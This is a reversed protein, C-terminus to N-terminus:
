TNVAYKDNYLRRVKEKARKIRMKVASESINFVKQIDRISLDDQYKMLLIMKEEAKVHELLKALQAAKIHSLDDANDVELSNVANREEEMSVFKGKQSKRLYDICFNYTISYLWTSFKSKGKFSGLNMYVKIFIDHTLDEAISPDKVFSLCKRYVKHVYREYLIEVMAPSQSVVIEKVVAEDTIDSKKTAATPLNFALIAVFM